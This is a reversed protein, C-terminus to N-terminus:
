FQLILNMLGGVVIATIIMLSASKFMDKLGLEKLLITFTAVCPFYITLITCGIVLQKTTLSLPGLMGIAVDKRLFGVLLASMAEKPLGWINQLIPGFIYVLFDVVKLAYLINVFLIGLLVFPLAEKLFSWLRLSLKKIVASGQPRRYPPIEVLIEPSKGKLFKNLLLGKLVAVLFLTGFVIGLFQGGRAGVLGVIMAIQAMCPVSIAMLTAAIFKERREELLRTALVGPVNCGLGLIMPIIAYGHLGIHHM